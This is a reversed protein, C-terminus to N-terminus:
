LLLSPSVTMQLGVFISADPFSPSTSLSDISTTEMRLNMTGTCIYDVSVSFPHRPSFSVECYLYATVSWFSVKLNHSINKGSSMISSTSKQLSSGLRLRRREEAHGLFIKGKSFNGFFYHLARMKGEKNKQGKVMFIQANVHMFGDHGALTGAAGM